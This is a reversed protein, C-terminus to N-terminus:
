EVPHAMVLILTENTVQDAFCTVSALVHTEWPELLLTTQAQRTELTPSKVKTKAAEMLTIGKGISSEEWAIDLSIKKDQLMTTCAFIKGVNELTVPNRRKEGEEQIAQVRPVRDGFIIMSQDGIRSVLKFHDFSALHRGNEPFTESLKKILETTFTGSKDKQSDAALLQVTTELSQKPIPQSQDTLSTIVFLEVAISKPPTEKKENEAQAAKQKSPEEGNALGPLCAFSVILLAFPLATKRSAMKM